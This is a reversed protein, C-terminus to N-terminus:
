PFPHPFPNIGAEPDWGMAEWGLARPVQDVRDVGLCPWNHNSHLNQLGPISVRVAHLGVDRIDDTTVDVVLVEYGHRAVEAVMAEIDSLVRGTSCDAMESLKVRRSRADRLHQFAEDVLDLRKMYFISHREFDSVDTFDDRPTWAANKHVTMRCYPVCQALEVLAKTVAEKPSPRCAAGVYVGTGFDTPSVMWVFASPVGIDLTTDYVRLDVGPRGYGFRDRMLALLEPDDVEVERPVFRNLWSIVFADRELWECIGSHIAEELTNGAALGTSSNWGTRDEDARTVYPIYVQHAPVLAPRQHTLSYGRAWRVKSAGTFVQARGYGGLANVGGKREIQEPSHLRALAPDVCHHTDKLEDYSGFVMEDDWYFRMCYREVAEGMAGAVARDLTLGASGSRDVHPRQEVLRSPDCVANGIVFCDPDGTIHMGAGIDTLIGVRPSLLRLGKRITEATASRPVDRLLLPIATPM